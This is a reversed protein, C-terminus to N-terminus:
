ASASPFNIALMRSPRRSKLSPISSAPAPRFPSPATEDAVCARIDFSKMVSFVVGKNNDEPLMSHNMGGRSTLTSPGKTSSCPRSENRAPIEIISKSLAPNPPTTTTRARRSRSSDRRFSTVICSSFSHQSTPLSLWTSIRAGLASSLKSGDRYTMELDGTAVAEFTSSPMITWASRLKRGPFAKNRAAQAIGDASSVFSKFGIM